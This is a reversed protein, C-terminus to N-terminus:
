YLREKKKNGFFDREEKEGFFDRDPTLSSEEAILQSMTSTESIPTRRNMQRYTKKATTRAKRGRVRAEKSLYRSGRNTTQFGERALQGMVSGTRKVARTRIPHEAEKLERKAKREERLLKAEERKRNVEELREQKTTEYEYRKINREADKTEKRKKRYDSIRGM